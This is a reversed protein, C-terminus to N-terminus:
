ACGVLGQSAGLSPFLITRLRIFFMLSATEGAVAKFFRRKHNLQCVRCPNIAEAEIEAPIGFLAEAAAGGIAFIANKDGGICIM